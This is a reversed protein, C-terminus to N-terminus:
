INQKLYHLLDIKASWGMKKLISIDATNNLRETKDGNKKEYNLKLHDAIDILKLGIGSGVDIIGKFSDDIMMEIANIVDEVHIFDRIHNINIYKVQNNLIKPILMEERAGPGYVTTFRMGVANKHYLQEMCYKSMAYPNQWSEHATSSSAYIIRKDKYMEFIRKSGLVNTLWYKEPKNISDKVGSLGALHIVLDINKPLKSKLIDHGSKIDFGILKFKNSLSKYLNSGIFGESGTLLINM